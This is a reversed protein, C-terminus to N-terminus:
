LAATFGVYLRRPQGAAIAQGFYPSTLVGSVATRNVRNWVNNAQVLLMIRRAPQTGPPAPSKPWQWGAFVGQNFQAFGRGSNRGVGPPRENFIGDGNSDVGTTITYPLASSYQWFTSVNLHRHALMQSANGGLRHRADNSGPGWEAGPQLRNVPVFFSGDTDDNLHAFTYNVRVFIGAKPDSYTATTTLASLRSRGTSEVEIVNGFQPDPRVGAANPANLNGGRFQGGSQYAVDAHLTLPGHTHDAGISARVSRPLTLTPSLLYRGSPLSVAATGATPDPYGPNTILLDQQHIGDVRVTQEIDTPNLWGYFIGGGVHFTTHPVRAPSWDLQARPALNVDRSMDSELEQRLGISANVTKAVAIDDQTWVGVQSVGYCCIGTGLRETFAMPQGASYAALSSFTFTGGANTVISSDYGSHWFLVGGRWVQRKGIPATVVDSVELQTTVRAGQLQAGGSSFANLVVVAPSKSAPTDTETQRQVQTRLAQSGGKGFPKTWFGRLRAVTQDRDYGREPLNFGGVGLNVARSDQYDTEVRLDNHHWNDLGVRVTGFAYRQPNNVLGRIPGAPTQAYLPQDDKGDNFNGFLVVSVRNHINGNGSFNVGGAQAAPADPNFANRAQISEPRAYTTLNGFWPTPKGSTVIEVFAPTAEHFEADFSNQRIRISQITAAPPLGGSTLGDVRVVSGVGALADITSQLIEQDASADATIDSTKVATEAATTGTGAGVTVSDTLRPMGLHVTTRTTVAALRAVVPTADSFGSLTSGVRYAGAPLGAFTAQGSADTVATRQTVGDRDITVTAGPVVQETPDLVTVVLQLGSQARPAAGLCLLAALLALTSVLRM